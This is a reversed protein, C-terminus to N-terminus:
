QPLYQKMSVALPLARFSSAGSFIGVRPARVYIAPAVNVIRRVSRLIKCQQVEGTARGVLWLTGDMYVLRYNFTVCDSSLSM